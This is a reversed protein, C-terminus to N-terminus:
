AMRSLTHPPWSARCLSTQQCHCRLLCATSWPQSLRLGGEVQLANGLCCALLVDRILLTRVPKLTFGVTEIPMIPFDEPRVIHTTGFIHWLVPQTVKEGGQLMRAPRPHLARPSPDALATSLAGQDLRGPGWAHSEAAPLRWRCCVLLDGM